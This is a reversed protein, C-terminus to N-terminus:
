FYGVEGPSCTNISVAGIQLWWGQAVAVTTTNTMLHDLTTSCLEMGEAGGLERFGM